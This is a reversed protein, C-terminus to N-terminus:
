TKSIYEYVGPICISQLLEVEERLLENARIAYYKRERERETTM